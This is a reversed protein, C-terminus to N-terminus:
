ASNDEGGGQEVYVVEIKSAGTNKVEYRERFREPRGARLLFMMLQDSYERIVGCEAGQYFVPKEVGDHARRRAEDELQDLAAEVIEDWREAFEGGEEHWQYVTRRALGAAECARSVNGNGAALATLFKEERSRTRKSRNAM